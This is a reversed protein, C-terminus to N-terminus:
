AMENSTPVSSEEGSSGDHQKLRKWINGPNASPGRSNAGQQELQQVVAQVAEPSQFSGPILLAYM